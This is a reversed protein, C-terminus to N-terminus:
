KKNKNKICIEGFFDKRKQMAGWFDSLCFDFLCFILFVFFVSFRCLFFFFFFFFLLNIVKWILM